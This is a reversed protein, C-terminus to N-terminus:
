EIIGPYDPPYYTGEAGGVVQITEIKGETFGLLIRDGSAKNVGKFEEEEYLYYISRANGNVKINDVVGEVLYIFIRKGFMENFDGEAGFEPPSIVSAHGFIEIRNIKNEAFYLFISDGKLVDLGRFVVPEVEMLAYDEGNFYQLRQCNGIIDDRIIEVSDVAQARNESDFFEILHGEITIEVEGLTDKKTLFANGFVKAYELTKDGFGEDGTLTLNESEHFLQVNEHLFVKERNNTYNAKRCYGLYVNQKVKVSGIAELSDDEIYYIIREAWVQRLSDSYYVNQEFFIKQAKQFYVAFDCEVAMDARTIRVNDILEKVIEGGMVRNKLINARELNIPPKEKAKQASIFVIGCLCLVIFLFLRGGRFEKWIKLGQKMLMEKM